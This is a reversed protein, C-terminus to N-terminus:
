NCPVSHLRSIDDINLTSSGYDRSSSSITLDQAVVSNLFIVEKVFYCNFTVYTSHLLCFLKFVLSLARFSDAMFFCM